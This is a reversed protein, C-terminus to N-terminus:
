WDSFYEEPTNEQSFKIAATVAGGITDACVGTRFGFDVHLEDALQLRVTDGFASVATIYWGNSLLQSTDRFFNQDIDMPKTRTFKGMQAFYL